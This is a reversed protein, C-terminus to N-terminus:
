AGVLSVMHDVAQKILDDSLDTRGGKPPMASTPGSSFGKLAHQYLTPKGKAIRPAWAAKDGAKPANALGTGHCTKCVNEFVETGNKFTVAVPATTIAAVPAITLASNDQGAVAVRAPSGVRQEISQQLMPDILLDAAQDHKGVYHAFAFVGIAFAMLLGLVVSFINFFHSDQKSM